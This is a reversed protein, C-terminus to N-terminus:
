AQSISAASDPMEPTLPNSFLAPVRIALSWHMQAGPEARPRRIRPAAPPTSPPRGVSSTAGASTASIKAPSMVRQRDSAQM